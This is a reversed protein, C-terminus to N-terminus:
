ATRCAALHVPTARSIEIARSHRLGVPIRDQGADPGVASEAQTRAALVDPARRWREARALALGPEGPGPPARPVLQRPRRIGEAKRLGRRGPGRRRLDTHARGHLPGQAPDARRGA